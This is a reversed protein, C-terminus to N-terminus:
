IIAHIWPFALFMGPKRYIGHANDCPLEGVLLPNLQLDCGELALARIELLDIREFAASSVSSISPHKLVTTRSHRAWKGIRVRAILKIRMPFRMREPVPWDPSVVSGVGLGPLGDASSSVRTM